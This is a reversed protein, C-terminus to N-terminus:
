CSFSVPRQAGSIKFKITALYRNEVGNYFFILDYLKIEQRECNFQVYSSFQLDRRNKKLRVDQVTMELYKNTQGVTLIYKFYIWINVLNLSKFTMSSTKKVYNTWGIFLQFQEFTDKFPFYWKKQMTNIADIIYMLHSTILAFINCLFLFFGSVKEKYGVIIMVTVTMALTHSSRVLM